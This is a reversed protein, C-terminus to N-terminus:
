AKTEEYPFRTLLEEVTVFSYGQERLYPLAIKLAAVTQSRDGGGDHMLIINGPAAQKIRSAITEAGPKRWDNTDINWGIESTILDSLDQATAEGFNGGPARFTTSAAKGTVDSIAQQGKVVEDRRESTSMLDLSVGKGSGAAHDYTHTCIEHGADSAKKVVDANNAIQKGITFFTAKANNQALIDLVEQTTDWPGDDFTLAIVKEGKTNVNYYVLKNNVPEKTVVDVTKGSENGTRTVKTGNEGKNIFQHVAGTGTKEFTYPLSQEASDTYKEMVDVGDGITITDGEYLHTNLDSIEKDNIHATCATGGGTTIVSKDVAVRNGAKVTVLQNDLVGQITRQEGQLTKHEGNLTVDVPGMLAWAQYGFYGGCGLVALVLLTIVVKPWARKKRKRQPEGVSMPTFGGTGGGNGGDHRGTYRETAYPSNEAYRSYSGADNSPAHRVPAVRQTHAANGGDPLSSHQPSATNAHRGGYTPRQQRDGQHLPAMIDPLQDELSRAPSADYQSDSVLTRRSSHASAPRYNNRSYASPNRRDASDYSSSRSPTRKRPTPAM